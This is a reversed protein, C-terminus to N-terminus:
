IYTTIAYFLLVSSILIIATSTAPNSLLFDLVSILIDELGYYRAKQPIDSLVKCSNQTTAPQEYAKDAPMDHEKAESNNEEYLIDAKLTRPANCSKCNDLVMKNIRDCYPCIWAIAKKSTKKYNDTLM